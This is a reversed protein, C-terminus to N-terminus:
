KGDGRSVRAGRERGDPYGASRWIDMEGDCSVPRETTDRQMLAMVHTGADRVRERLASARRSRHAGGGGPMSSLGRRARERERERERESARADSQEVAFWPALCVM